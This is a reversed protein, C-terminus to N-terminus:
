GLAIAFAIARATATADINSVATQEADTFANTNTNNEYATKIEADTQDATASAEIGQIKTFDSASLKGDVVGTALPVVGNALAVWAAGDYRYVVDEDNVSATWGEVPTPYTTALDAFTAVAEKWDIDSIVGSILNDTENKTYTTAQPAKEADLENIAGQVTTASVSGSPVSVVEAATQDATAGSEIGDLKNRDADQFTNPQSIYATKIEAPTQDGTSSDEILDLKTGDVSVNRGDVLGGTVLNPVEVTGTFVAGALDAKLNLATQQATSVPKDVDATDDVNGLGVDTATLVVDGTRGQVTQIPPKSTYLNVWGTGTHFFSDDVVLDDGGLTGAVSLIYLDGAQGTAPYVNVSADYYGEFVVLDSGVAGIREAVTIVADIHDAVIKVDDYATGILPDVTGTEPTLSTKRTM